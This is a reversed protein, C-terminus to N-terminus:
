ARSLNLKVLAAAAASVQRCSLFSRRTRRRGVNVAGGGGKDNNAQRHRVYQLDMLAPRNGTGAQHETKKGGCPAADRSFVASKM